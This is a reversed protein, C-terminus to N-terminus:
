KMTVAELSYGYVSALTARLWYDQWLGYRFRHSYPVCARANANAITPMFPPNDWPSHGVGFVHCIEHVMTADISFRYLELGNDATPHVLLDPDEDVRYDANTNFNILLGSNTTKGLETRYEGWANAIRGKPEFDSFIINIDGARYERGGVPLRDEDYHTIKRPKLEYKSNTPRLNIKLGKVDHELLQKIAYFAKIFSYNVQRFSVNGIVYDKDIDVAVLDVLKLEDTEVQTYSVPMISNPAPFSYTFTIEAGGTSKVKNIASQLAGIKDGTKRIYGRTYALELPPIHKYSM